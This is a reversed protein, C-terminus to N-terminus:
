RDVDVDAFSAAAAFFVTIAAGLTTEAAIASALSGTAMGSSFQYPVNGAEASDDSTM